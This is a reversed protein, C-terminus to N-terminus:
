LRTLLGFHNFICAHTSNARMLYFTCIYTNETPDRYGHADWLRGGTHMVSDMIKIIINM